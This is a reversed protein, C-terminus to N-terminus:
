NQLKSLSRTNIDDCLLVQLSQLSSRDIGIQTGFKKGYDYIDKVILSLPVFRSEEGNLIVGTHNQIAQSLSVCPDFHMNISDVRNKFSKDNKDENFTNMDHNTNISPIFLSDNIQIDLISNAHTSLPIFIGAGTSKELVLNPQLIDIAVNQNNQLKCDHKKRKRPRKSKKKKRSPNGNSSNVDNTDTTSNNCNSINTRKEMKTKLLTLKSKDFQDDTVPEFDCVLESFIALIMNDQCLECDEVIKENQLGGAQLNIQGFVNHQSVLGDVTAM